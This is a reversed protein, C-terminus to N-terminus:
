QLAADSLERRVFTSNPLKGDWYKWLELRRQNLLRAEAARGTRSYLRGLDRYLRSLSNAHRLDTTPEPDSAKVKEHLEEFTSVADAMKGTDAFHDALARLTLDGEAGPEVKEAPYIKLDRLRAFAAEIRQRSEEPRRLRRLAYSSGALLWVEDRRAKANEKIESIRRFTHDYVALARAPDRDRLVDGLERGAMSLYMRSSFDHPDQLAPAEALDYARQLLPLADERRGANINNLEGLILGERWIAAGLALVSESKHPDFLGEALTRSERIALLAGDIDGAFRSANALVGLGRGLHRRDRGRRALEVSKRAYHIAEAVRHLNMYTLAVNVYLRAAAVDEEHSPSPAEMLADLRAAAKRGFALAAPLRKESEALIMSDHAIEASTLLARRRGPFAPAALASEVFSDAKALSKAAEKFQGLTPGTPIGQVRAVQLYAGGIELALDLSEATPRGWITVPAESGLRELYEVSASVISNRAKTSGPLSRIESDLKFFQKSLQRVQDFRRQAIAREREAIVLGSALGAVALTAAATPLWFRRLFKRARYFADGKRAQVPRHDLFAQIDAIFLDVSAYREEPEDRMAKSLISALDRPLGMGRTTGRELPSRGTLLRYLVAGLSYVDTTTAQADGRLQEPSAYEPTLIREITRTEDPADILIKAIGFDLLKPQGGPEVLINSPKLDRHIILNRHAYSVAEAVRLILSLKGRLDLGAAYEDIPKGDVYEMVLYPRSGAHGADLLRAIGPHNLSALIQRERLFREGFSPLDAGTRVFKIAVQQDFEGDAREALYVAGMGGNGLLRILRYPGCRSNGTVPADTLFLEAAASKVAGTLFGGPSEDYQFLSELDARVGPPVQRVAYENERHAPSLGALERFLVKVGEDM